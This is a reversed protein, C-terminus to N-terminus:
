TLNNHQTLIVAEDERSSPKEEKEVKDFTGRAVAAFFFFYGGIMMLATLIMAHGFHCQTPWVFVIGFHVCDFLNQMGNQAGSIVGRKDESVWEQFMQNVALDFLWLGCRSLTCSVILTGISWLSPVPDCESKFSLAFNNQDLEFPFDTSNMGPTFHAGCTQNNMERYVVYPSGPVFLGVITGLVCFLHMLAGVVGAWVLGHNKVTVEYLSTGLLGFIGAVMWVLGMLNDSICHTAIYAQAIYSLQFVNAFLVALALGPIFIKSKSWKSWSKLWAIISSSKKAENIRTSPSQQLSPTEHYLRRMILIEFILSIINWAAILSAGIIADYGILPGALAPGMLMAAQDIRRIWANVSTLNEGNFVQPVWDRELVIQMGISALHGICALCTALGIFWPDLNEPFLKLLGLIQVGACMAVSLNQVCLLTIAARLRPTKDIWLGISSSFFAATVAISLGYVGGLLIKESPFAKALLLYAAFFWMRDGMQSLLGQLLFLSKKEM